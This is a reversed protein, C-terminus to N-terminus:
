HEQPAPQTDPPLQQQQQQNLMQNRLQQQMQEQRLQMEEIQQPTRQPAVFGGNIPQPQELMPQEYDDDAPTNRTNNQPAPGTPAASLVIQRPVGAGRDGIMLLNYGTGNLLQSIVEDAPGPGYTGFVRVDGPMPGELKTGTDTSIDNLIQGLSSNNADVRLGHSDWVVNAAVPKDNVPWNAPPPEVPAAAVQLASTAPSPKAAARRHTHVPGHVAAIAHTTKAQDPVAFAAPLPGTSLAACLALKFLRAISLESMAIPELALALAPAGRRGTRKM